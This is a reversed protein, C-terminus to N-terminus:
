LERDSDVLDRVAHSGRAGSDPAAPQPTTM